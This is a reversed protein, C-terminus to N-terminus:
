IKIGNFYSLYFQAKNKSKILLFNNQLTQHFSVTYRRAPLWSVPLQTMVNTGNVHHFWSGTALMISVNLKKDNGTKWVYLNMQRREGKLTHTCSICNKGSGSATATHCTGLVVAVSRWTGSCSTTVDSSCSSLTLTLSMTITWHLLCTTVDSSLTLTLSTTIAWHLLCTTVDSSCSSLTLTLSTTITWHLLCTTVDSSCSSLTLTLSTTIAWHLLCTTADSSCSSLTLTLSTTIAWHLLCTIVDSSCSSLTLTLSTITWHLLCTTVDSSCSSLTLTLLTTITWHLLCTTVDSSCSSLTLTLLKTIAWHLLCTTVDSSCSSLTLTLSTTITWHLLCTTVDSSCSSLTLTLSKITWHLLCTTVDSSCSSLAHAVNHHNLTLSMYGCETVWQGMSSPEWKGREPHERHSLRSVSRIVGLENGKLTNGIFRHEQSTSGNRKEQAEGWVCGLSSQHKRIDQLGRCRTLLCLEWRGTINQALIVLMDAMM